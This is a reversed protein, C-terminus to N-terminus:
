KTRYLHMSSILIKTGLFFLLSEKPLNCLKCFIECPRLQLVYQLENKSWKSVDDDSPLAQNKRCNFSLFSAPINVARFSKSKIPLSSSSSAKFLTLGGRGWGAKQSPNLGKGGDHRTQHKSQFVANENESRTYWINAAFPCMQFLGLLYYLFELHVLVSVPMCLLLLQQEQM